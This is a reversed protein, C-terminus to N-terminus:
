RHRGLLEFLCHWNYAQRAMLACRGGSPCMYEYRILLVVLLVLSLFCCPVIGPAATMPANSFLPRLTVAAAFSIATSRTSAAALLMLLVVLLVVESAAAPHIRVPDKGAVHIQTYCLAGYSDGGM